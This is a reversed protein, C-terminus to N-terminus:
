RTRNKQNEIRCNKWKSLMHIINDLTQDQQKEQVFVQDYHIKIEGHTKYNQM